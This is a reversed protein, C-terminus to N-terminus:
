ANPVGLAPTGAEACWNKMECAESGRHKQIEDRHPPKSCPNAADLIKLTLCTFSARYAECESRKQIAALEKNALDNCRGKKQWDDGAAVDCAHIREVIPTLHKVHVNEHVEICERVCPDKLEADNYKVILKGTFSGGTPDVEPSTDGYWTPSCDSKGDYAHPITRRPAVIGDRGQDLPRRTHVPSSRDHGISTDRNRDTGRIGLRAAQCAACEGTPGPTGGCACARQILGGQSPRLMPRETGVRPREARTVPAGHLLPTAAMNGHSSRRQVMPAHLM